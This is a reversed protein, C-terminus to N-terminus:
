GGPTNVEFVVGASLMFNFSTTHSILLNCNPNFKETIRDQFIAM